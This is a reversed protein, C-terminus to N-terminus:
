RQALGRQGVQDAPGFGPDHEVVVDGGVAVPHERVGAPKTRFADHRLLDARGVARARVGGPDLGLVRGGGGHLALAAMPKSRSGVSGHKSPGSVTWVRRKDPLASLNYLFRLSM